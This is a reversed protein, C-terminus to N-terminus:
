KGKAEGVKKFAKKLSIDNRLIVDDSENLIAEKGKFIIKGDNLIISKGNIIDEVIGDSIVYGQISFNKEDFIVDDICGINEGDNSIVKIGLVKVHKGKTDIGSRNGADKLNEASYIIVKNKISKINKAPLVRKNKVWGNCELIFGQLIKDDSFVLPEKIKGVIKGSKVDVVNMGLLMKSKIM